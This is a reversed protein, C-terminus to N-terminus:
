KGRGNKRGNVYEGDFILQHFINFVSAKGNIRGNVFEGEFIFKCFQKYEEAKGIIEGNIYEGRYDLLGDYYNNKILGKGDKLEYQMNDFFDYGKGNWKLDNFYEGEFLLKGKENYEKGRGNRKGNIYEGEFILQGNCNYEKGHGNINNNLTYIANGNKDYGTGIWKKDNVYEGEFLLNDIKNREKMELKKKLYSYKSKLEFIDYCDINNYYEKGEGNRKGNLYKGKFLLKGYSNYEKGNGNREGNLYEGEYILIDKEDDFEKGIGNSDYIIYRGSYQYYDILNIKIINQLSKNYKIMKLKQKKNFYTFIKQIFYLARIKKLM